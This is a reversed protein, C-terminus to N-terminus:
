RWASHRPITFMSAFSAKKRRSYTQSAQLALLRWRCALQWDGLMAISMGEYHSPQVFIDFSCLIKRVDTRRGLFHIRDTLRYEKTLEEAAARKEGDGILAFHIEPNQQAAVRAAKVFDIPGKRGGLVGVMVAIVAKEPLGLKRRIATKEEESCHDAITSPDIGNGIYMSKGGMARGYGIHEDRNGNSVFVIKHVIADLIQMKIRQKPSLPGLPNHETRIRLPVRARYAAVIGEFCLPAYPMHFHVIDPATEKFLRTLTGFNQRINRDGPHLPGVRHTKAGLADAEQAMVDLSPHGTPIALSIPYGDGVFRETLDLVIQETGSRYITVPVFLIHPKGM